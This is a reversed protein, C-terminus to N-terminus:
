TGVFSVIVFCALAENECVLRVSDLPVAVPLSITQDPPRNSGIQFTQSGPGNFQLDVEDDTSISIFRVNLATFDETVSDSPDGTLLIRRFQTAVPTNSLNVTGAVTQTAPFNTVQVSSTGGVSVQGAVKLAGDGDVAARMTTDNRDAIQVPAAMTPAYANQTQLLLGVMTGVVLAAAWSLRQRVASTSM